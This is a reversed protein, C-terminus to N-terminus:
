ICYCLEAEKIDRSCRVVADFYIMLSKDEIMSEKIPEKETAPHLNVSELISSKRKNTSRDQINDRSAAIRTPTVDEGLDEVKHKYLKRKQDELWEEHRRQREM